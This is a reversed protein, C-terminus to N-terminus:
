VDALDSFNHFLPRSNESHVYMYVFPLHPRRAGHRGRLDPTVGLGDRGPESPRRPSFLSAPFPVLCNSAGGRVGERSVGALRPWYARILSRHFPFPFFRPTAPPPPLPPPPYLATCLFLWGVRKQRTKTRDGAASTWAEAERIGARWVEGMTYQRRRRRRGEHGAAGTLSAPMPPLSLDLNVPLGEVRCGSGLRLDSAVCRLRPRGRRCASRRTPITDAGPNPGSWQSKLVM